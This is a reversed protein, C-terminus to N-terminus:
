NVNGAEFTYDRIAIFLNRDQLLSLVKEVLLNPEAGEAHERSFGIPSESLQDFYKLFKGVIETDDETFSHGVFARISTM